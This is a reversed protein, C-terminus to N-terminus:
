GNVNAVVAELVDFAYTELKAKTSLLYQFVGLIPEIQGAAVIEHHARTIMSCLLRSLAPVNGRSSWLDHNLVPTILQKYYDSM